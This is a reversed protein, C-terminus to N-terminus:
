RALLVSSTSHLIRSVIPFFKMVLSTFTPKRLAQESNVLVEWKVVMSGIVCMEVLNFGVDSSNTSHQDDEVIWEWKWVILVDHPPLIM